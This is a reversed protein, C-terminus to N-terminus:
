TMHHNVILILARGCTSPTLYCCDCVFVFVVHYSNQDGTQFSLGFTPTSTYYLCFHTSHFCDDMRIDANLPKHKDARLILPGWRCRQCSHSACIILSFTTKDVQSKETHSKKERNPIKGKLQDLHEKERQLQAMESEQEGELLACEVETQLLWCFLRPM